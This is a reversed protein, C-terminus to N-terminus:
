NEQLKELRAGVQTLVDDTSSGSQYGDRISEYTAKAQDKMGKALFTDGLVIYAKALWYSQSGAKQSFKYVENEVNEFDAKDFTDQILLYASEAGEASSPDSDALSAFLQMAEARRSSALYSKAEVYKAERKLDADMAGDLEVVLASKVSSDWDKARFASRMMGIEASKRNADMKTINLLSSYGNYADEWRELGYSLNAYGLRAGEQFSGECPTEMVKAYADRAKEVAGLAKHSEAVYFWAQPLKAGQPYADMYKQFSLLAQQWNGALFVQEATNFYLAEKNLKESSGALSNEELFELYKEPTKRTQYISEIALLAEEAYESGMSRKVVSKYCALAKDYEKINRLVMGEGILGKAVYISDSTTSVLRKFTNVASKNDRIDAQARGLEYMAESYMPASPSAQNVAQLVKVKTKKDGALGYSLAQQYYPYIKDPSPWLDIVRQYSKEAAKYNRVAFDCDARRTLADELVTKDESEGYTDFWKAAVPWNDLKMYCYGLNYPLLRGETKGELASGNYLDAYVDRAAAYDEAKFLAEALWYRSLQCLADYRPLYYAAARLCPIADRYSGLEMLQQGRLYNAKTYNAKMDATLEDIHDYAEVAAAYDHNYLNALAIYSYIMDGKAASGYRELYDAFGSTDKNLDFALKACNFMADETISADYSVAAADRFSDLASVNNMLKLYANALQYNAIQGLSDTRNEMKTFNRVAGDYDQVGYLVSGAYFYDSRSMEADSEASYYKRANDKDGVVLYSESMIRSLRHQRESPLNDYIRSGEEIVFRYNKQNFECDVIYFAALDGFRSDGKVKAFSAEAEAFHMENYDMYGLLYTAPATYVSYPQKQVAEFRSRAEEYDSALYAVYGQEFGLKTRSERPVDRVSLKGFQEAAEMYRGSDFLNFAYELRMKPVLVSAPNRNVYDAFLEDHDDSGASIACLVAYGECVPDDSLSEFLTRASSYMGNNYLNRARRYVSSRSERAPLDPLSLITIATVVALLTRIRM